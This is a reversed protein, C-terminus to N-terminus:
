NFDSDFCLSDDFDEPVFEFVDDDFSFIDGLRAEM